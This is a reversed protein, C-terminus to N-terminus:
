SENKARMSNRWVMRKGNACGWSASALRPDGPSPPLMRDALPTEAFLPAPGLLDRASPAFGGRGTQVLSSGGTIRCPHHGLGGSDLLQVNFGTLAGSIDLLPTSIQVVGSVGTPAAAQIVNFSFVGPQFIYPTQGGIFLTDGSPVLAQVDIQVHGGAANRAATNAQIFGTNMILTHAQVHIDGGNGAVGKVSTSIQANDLLITGQGGTIDISGGNGQNASTTIGSNDLALRQSFDVQVQSAAVNGTSAATIEADKLLITPASVALLGPTVGFPNGLSADNQISVTGHGTLSVSDRASLIIQGSQGSSGYYARSFIGSNRGPSNQGDIRVNAASVTVKGASGSTLTSSSIMGGNAIELAGTARVDLSGANGSRALNELTGYAASFIGFLTGEGFIRIDGASVSVSGANGSGYTSSDIEGGNSITLTNRANVQVNGGFGTPVPALVQQSSTSRISGERDVTITDAAVKVTGANGTSWTSSDIQGANLVSLSGAVMVDINGASGANGTLGSLPYNNSSIGTSTRAGMGDIVLRGASVKVTGANGRSWTSSDILGGNRVALTGATTVDVTGARGAPDSLSRSASSIAAVGNGQGDLTISGASVKVTGANGSWWTSSNISSGNDKVSLSGTAQVDINGANGSLAAKSLIGTEGSGLSDIAISGASVMINGALGSSWSSSNITAANRISLRGSALVRIDGADGSSGPKSDSFLGSGTGDITINRASVSASGGAGATYTSTDVQGDNRLTIDGSANIRINGANRASETYTYFGTQEGGSGGDVTLTGTAILINGTHYADDSLAWVYGGNLIDMNGRAIPLEGAVSVEGALGGFAIIRIDGGQSGIRGRDIQVDGGVLSLAQLPKALIGAGANVAIGARTTGLFGFAEPAASSFTSATGPDAQFNGDPFKLYNATSVHLAAPVDVVAGAGFTVGAPNIFFFNPASGTSGPDLKLLGNITSLQGGTVRSIVNSAPGNITFVAGDGSGVSFKSFSHFVNGGARQGYNEPITIQQYSASGRSVTGSPTLVVTPGAGISGDLVINSAAQAPLACGAVALLATVPPWDPKCPTFLTRRM